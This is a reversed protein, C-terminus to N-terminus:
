TISRSHDVVTLLQGTLHQIEQEVRHIASPPADSDRLTKAQEHKSRIQLDLEGIIADIYSFGRPEYRFLSPMTMGGLSDMSPLLDMHPFIVQMHASRDPVPIMPEWSHAWHLPPAFTSLAYFNM